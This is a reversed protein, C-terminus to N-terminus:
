INNNLHRIIFLVSMNKGKLMTLLIVEVTWPLGIGAKLGEDEKM